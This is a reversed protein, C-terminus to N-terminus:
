KAKVKPSFSVGMEIFDHQHKLPSASMTYAQNLGRGLRSLEDDGTAVTAFEAKSLIHGRQFLFSVSGTSIHVSQYSSWAQPRSSSSYTKLHLTNTQYAGEPVPFNNPFRSIWDRIKPESQPMFYIDFIFNINPPLHNLLAQHGIPVLGTPLCIPVPLKNNGIAIISSGRTIIPQWDFKYADDGLKPTQAVVPLIKFQCHSQQFAQLPNAAFALSLLSFSVPILSIFFLYKYWQRFGNMELTEKDARLLFVLREGQSRVFLRM